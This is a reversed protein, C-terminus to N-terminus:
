PASPASPASASPLTSAAPRAARARRRGKRRDGVPAARAAPGRGPVPRGGRRGGRQHGVVSVPRHRGDAGSRQVTAGVRGSDGRLLAVHVAQWCSPRGRRSSGASSRGAGRHEAAHRGRDGRDVGAGQGGGAAAGGGGCRRAAQGRGDPRAAGRCRHVADRARRRRRRRVQGARTVIRWRLDTDVVLGALGRDAPDADLLASLVEIHRMSCCRRACRTSTRWSTIRARRLAGRALELLRDAFMPWGQACAWGPEAYSDLAAQAQLLLRQAVGVETEAQVGACVLSVFERARLEAARTMEWAASWVLTRPLPEDIDAIRSLATALSEDDLRLSCYTLDDDNVLILEGRSIGQM